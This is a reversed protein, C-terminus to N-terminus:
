PTADSRHLVVRRNQARGDATGNDAVPQSAGYGAWRIRAKDIGRDILYDAVSQARRESLTRNYSEPGQSDTHGEITGRMTPVNRLLALARDLGASSEPKLTASNTDFLVQLRLNYGCGIVDVRDGSATNPCQDVTDGVGDRDTDLPAPPPTSALVPPPAPPPPPPPASATPASGGFVYAFGFGPGFEAVDYRYWDSQGPSGHEFDIKRYDAYLSFIWRRPQGADWDLETRAHYSGDSGGFGVDIRNAWIWQRSLGFANTLGVIGDTWDNKIARTTTAAGVSFFPDYRHRTYNAGFLIGWRSRDTRAFTHAAALEAKTAKFKIGATLPTGGATTGGSSDELELVAGNYYITWTGNTSVGALGFASKTVDSLDSSSLDVDLDVPGFLNTGFGMDGQVNLGFLGTGIATSWEEAQTRSALSSALIAAVMMLVTRHFTLKDTM